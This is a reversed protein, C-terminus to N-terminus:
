VEFRFSLSLSLSRNVDLLDLANIGITVWNAPVIDLGLNFVGREDSAFFPNHIVRYSYNALEVKLFLVDSYIAKQLAFFVNLNWDYTPTFAIGVGFNLDWNGGVALGFLGEGGLLMFSFALESPDIYWQVDCYMGIGQQIIYKASVILPKPGGGELHMDYDFAVGLNFRLFSISARPLFVMRPALVAKGGVGVEFDKSVELSPYDVVGTSGTASLSFNRASAFFPSFAVLAALLVLFLVKREM